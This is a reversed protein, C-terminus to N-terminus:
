ASAGQAHHADTLRKPRERAHHDSFYSLTAICPGAIARDICSRELGLRAPDRLAESRNEYRNDNMFVAPEAAFEDSMSITVREM